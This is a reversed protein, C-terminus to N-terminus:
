WEVTGRDDDDGVFLRTDLAIDILTGPYSGRGVSARRVQKGRELSSRLSGSLSHILVIGDNNTVTDILYNLGAGMNNPRSRATIGEQAALELAAGDSMEGFRSKITAPIGVGFDSVTIRIQRVNPYHQAHVYGTNRRSHDSINNFLEKICTRVSSLSNYSADLEYQLWPTLKHEIWSFAQASLVSVCPLTTSRISSFRSLPIKIYNRFFGCDDLYSIAPSEMNEFNIFGIQVGNDILWGITNSLVTYGSGDIFNLAGFDLDIESSRPRGDASVIERTFRDIANL